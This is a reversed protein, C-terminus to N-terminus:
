ESDENRCDGNRWSWFLFTAACLIGCAPSDFYIGLFAFILVAVIGLLNQLFDYKGMILM